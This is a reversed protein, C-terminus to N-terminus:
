RIRKDKSPETISSCVLGANGPCIVQSNFGPIVPPSIGLRLELRQESSGLGLLIILRDAVDPLGLFSIFQSNDNKHCCYFCCCCCCVHQQLLTSIALNPISILLNELGSCAIIGITAVPRITLTDKAISECIQRDETQPPCNDAYSVRQRRESYAQGTLCRSKSVDVLSGEVIEWESWDGYPCDCHTFLDPRRLRLLSDCLPQCQINTTFVAVSIAAFIFHLKTWM